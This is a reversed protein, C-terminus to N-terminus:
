CTLNTFVISCWTPHKISTCNSPIQNKYGNSCCDSVLGGCRVPFDDDGHNVPVCCLFSEETHSVVDAQLRAVRIHLGDNDRCPLADGNDAFINFKNSVHLLYISETAEYYSLITVFISSRIRSFIRTATM